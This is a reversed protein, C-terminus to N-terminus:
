PTAQETQSVVLTGENPDQTMEKYLGGIRATMDGTPFTTDDISVVPVIEGMTGTCFIEDAQHLEAQPIDRVEHPNGADQERGPRSERAETTRAPSDSPSASAPIWQVPASAGLLRIAGKNAAGSSSPRANTSSPQRWRSCRASSTARSRRAIRRRGTSGVM